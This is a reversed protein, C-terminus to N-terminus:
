SVKEHKEGQEQASDIRKTLSGDTEKVNEHRM